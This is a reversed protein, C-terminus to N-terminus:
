CLSAYGPCRQLSLINYRYVVHVVPNAYNTRYILHLDVQYTSKCDPNGNIYEFLCLTNLIDM